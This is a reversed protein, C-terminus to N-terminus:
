DNILQKIESLSKGIIEYYDSTINLITEFDKGFGLRPQLKEFEMWRALSLSGSWSYKNGNAEFSKQKFDIHKVEKM